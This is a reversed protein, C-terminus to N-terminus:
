IMAGIKIHLLSRNVTYLTGPVADSAQEYDIIDRIRHILSAIKIGVNCYNIVSNCNNALIELTVKLTWPTTDSTGTVIHLTETSPPPLYASGSREQTNGVAAHPGASGHAQCRSSTVESGGM